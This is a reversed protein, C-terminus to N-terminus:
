PADGSIRRRIREEVRKLTEAGAVTEEMAAVEGRRAVFARLEVVTHGGDLDLGPTALVILVAETAQESLPLTSLYRALRAASSRGPFARLREVHSWLTELQGEELGSGDLARLGTSTVLTLHVEFTFRIGDARHPSAEELVGEPLAADPGLVFIEVGTFSQDPAAYMGWGGLRSPAFGMARALVMHVPPWVTLVGLIAVATALRIPRTKM